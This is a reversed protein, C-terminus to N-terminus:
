AAAMAAAKREAQRVAGEDCIACLAAMLANVFYMSVAGGICATWSVGLPLGLMCLFMLILAISRARNCVNAAEKM